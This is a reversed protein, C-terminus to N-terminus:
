GAVRQTNRLYTRLRCIYRKWTQCSKYFMGQAHQLRLLLKPEDHCEESLKYVATTTTHRYCAGLAGFSRQGTTRQCQGASLPKYAVDYMPHIRPLYCKIKLQMTNTTRKETIGLQNRNSKYSVFSVTYVNIIAAGVCFRTVCFLRRFYHNLCHISQNHITKEAARYIYTRISDTHLQM